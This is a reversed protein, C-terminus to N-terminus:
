AKKKTFYIIGAGVVAGAVAFGAISMKSKGMGWGIGAGLVATILGVTIMDTDFSKKEVIKETNKNVIPTEENRRVSNFVEQQPKVSDEMAESGTKAEIDGSAAMVLEEQQSVENVVEKKQEVPKRVSLERGILSLQWNFNQVASEDPEGKAKENKSKARLNDRMSTIEETSKLKLMSLYEQAKRQEFSPM